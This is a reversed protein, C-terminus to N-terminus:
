DNLISELINKIEFRTNGEGYKLSTEGEPNFSKIAYIIKEKDSGVLVNWGDEVTETWETNNRLTICPKNFFYAEKQIGGSDTIIKNANKELTLMELFGVPKMVLINSNKIMDLLNFKEIMKKTRPHLPFVIKEESELLAEIINKLNQKNDTNSQRHVTLLMYNDKELNNKKLVSDDIKDSSLLLSDYMVDGTLYVNKEIGEKKLNNIAVDSPCFLIDSVRDAIIRNIEEPMTKDYSRLGAEVHALPIHLKSTALAGAVTSNTDGFILVIDPKEKILIEEIAMLMKGTQEGQKNSKIGLNYDPEPIGLQEFFLGDMEYDYHQGTHIVINEFNNLTTLVPM